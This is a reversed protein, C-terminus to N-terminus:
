DHVPEMDRHREVFHWWLWAAFAGVVGFLLGSQFAEGGRPLSLLATPVGSVAAGIAILWGFRPEPLLHGFLVAPFALVIGVPLAIITAYVFTIFALDRGKILANEPELAVSFMATVAGIALAIVPVALAARGGLNLRDLM